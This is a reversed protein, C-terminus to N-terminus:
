NTGLLNIATEYIFSILSSSGVFIFIGITFTVFTEKYESKEEVSGLMYRIGMLAILVVGLAIGVNRIAGLINGILTIAKSSDESSPEPKFEDLSHGLQTEITTGFTQEEGEQDQTTSTSSESSTTGDTLEEQKAFSHPILINFILILTIVVSFITKSKIM